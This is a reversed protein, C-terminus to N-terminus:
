TTLRRESNYRPERRAIAFFAALGALGALSTLAAPLLWGPAYNLTVIHEGAPVRVARFALNAREMAAPAGDIQASWGPYHTAAVVLWADEDARVRIATLDREIIDVVGAASRALDCEGDGALLVLRAPDWGPASLEVAAADDDLWCAGGVLWALPADDLTTREGTAAYVASVGAARLLPRAEKAAAILELYRAYRGVLLPDFHNFVDAEDLLNLEPLGGARYAAVESATMRYDDLRLHTEFMRADLVEAPWFAREAASTPQPYYFRAGTTPNLGRNAWVLDVAVVILVAATWGRARRAGPAPKLLTLVVAALALTSTTVVARLLTALAPTQDPASASGVIGVALSAACFAVARRSWSGGRTWWTVGIASLAALGFVTWLHWRVPAQFLDFTPLHDFLFPFIPTYRGLALVFAAAIALAFFPVHRALPDGARRRWPWKVLAAAAGLLPLLGIYVADEFFVGNTYYSGDVPSGFALPAVLNLSRVPAYSFNLAFDREVGGGRQSSLLLEATPALQIAAVAAGVLVAAVGWALSRTHRQRVAQALAYTGALLLSYWAVQAHGALLLLATFGALALGSRAPRGESLGHAAWMLWPLWAAASIMPYTGARGVLYSTLGFALASVARGLGNAGLGGTFAWMGWGAIFLHAAATASMMWATPLVFSPWTLPYLLASQYNALLPAGAGNLANWWPVEGARLLDIALLRWPTFQLSPLGWFFVEGWLLRHFLVGLAAALPMLPFIRRLRTM